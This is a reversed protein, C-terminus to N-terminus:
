QRLIVVDFATEGRAIALRGDAAIDFAFIMDSTFHTMQSAPSGDIPLRWLNDVNGAGRAHILAKSDVDWQYIRGAPGPLRRILAGDNMSVVVFSEAGGVRTHAALLQGDLSVRPDYADKLVTVPEGGSIPVKKITENDATCWGPAM